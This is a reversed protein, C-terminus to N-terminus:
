FWEGTLSVLTQYKIEQFRCVKVEVKWASCRYQANGRKTSAQGKYINKNGCNSRIIVLLPWQGCELIALKLSREGPIYNLTTEIM